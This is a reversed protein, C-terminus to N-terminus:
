IEDTVNINDIACGTANRCYVEFYTSSTVTSVFESELTGNFFVKFWGSDDRSVEIHHWGQLPDIYISSISNIISGTQQWVAFKDENMYPGICVYTSDDVGFPVAGDSMFEVYFYGDGDDQVFIDFNWTGVNVTSDRRAVNIDDDLVTLVGGTDSFNGEKTVQTSSNEYAFTTWDDLGPIEFDESWIVAANSTTTYVSICLVFMALGAILQIWRTKM